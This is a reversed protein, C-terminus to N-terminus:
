CCFCELDTFNYPAINPYPYDSLLSPILVTGDGNINNNYTSLVDTVGGSPYYMGVITQGPCVTASIYPNGRLGAFDNNGYGTGFSWYSM